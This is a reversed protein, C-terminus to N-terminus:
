ETIGRVSSHRVFFYGSHCSCIADIVSSIEKWQMHFPELDLVSLPLEFDWSAYSFKNDCRGVLHHKLCATLVNRSRVAGLTALSLTTSMWVCCDLRTESMQKHKATVLEDTSQHCGTVICLKGAQNQETFYLKCPCLIKQRQDRHAACVHMLCFPFQETTNTNLTLIVPLARKLQTQGGAEGQM